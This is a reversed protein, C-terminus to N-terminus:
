VEHRCPTWLRSLSSVWSMAYYYHLTVLHLGAMETIFM